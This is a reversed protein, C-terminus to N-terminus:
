RALIEAAASLLQEIPRITIGIVAAVLLGGSLAIRGTMPTVHAGTIGGTDHDDTTEGLLMDFAHIAISTFIVMMVALAIAIAWGFGDDIGARVIAVESALISFPPLGVLAILGLTFITGIFPDRRLLGRVDGILTAGTLFRIEGTVSFTVSKAFGNGIMHLLVASMALPSGVAAALAILGMHEVSSYALLRRYDRQTIMLSAAVVLSGLAAVLLLNRVYDPGLTLDAIVKFRLLAYMSMMSLAGSMLGAVPAPAQSYADPLWSHLPALGAKTGYGVIILGVAVRMADPDLASSHEALASWDLASSADIGGRRAVFYVLVTGLLATAVGVSGLVLYKWSAELSARDRRHGVLLVTAVTTTEIAVWMLGLNDACVVVTMAAITVAVLVGYLRAREPTTADTRLETGVFAVGYTSTVAAVGGILIIMLASVADVRLQGDLAIVPGKDVVRTALAVGAAVVALSALPAAWATVRNWGAVAILVAALLPALPLALVITDM